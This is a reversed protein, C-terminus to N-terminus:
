ESLEVNAAQLAPFQEAVFRSRVFDPTGSTVNNYRWPRLSRSM